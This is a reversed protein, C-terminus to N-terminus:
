EARFTKKMVKVTGEAKRNSQHYRPTSIIHFKGWQNLLRPISQKQITPEQKDVLKAFIETGVAILHSATTGKDM